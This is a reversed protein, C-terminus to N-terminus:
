RGRYIETFKPVKTIEPPTIEVEPTFVRKIPVAEIPKPKIILYASTIVIIISIAMGFERTLKQKKTLEEPRMNEYKNSEQM